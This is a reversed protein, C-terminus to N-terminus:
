EEWTEIFELVSSGRAFLESNKGTEGSIFKGPVLEWENGDAGWKFYLSNNGQNELYWNTRHARIPMIEQFDDAGQIVQSNIFELPVWEHIKVHVNEINYNNSKIEFQYPFYNDLKLLRKQNVYIKIPPEVAIIDSQNIKSIWGIWDIKNKELQYIELIIKDSTFTFPIVANYDNEAFFSYHQLRWM